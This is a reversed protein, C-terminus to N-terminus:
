IFVIEFSKGLKKCKAYVAPIRSKGDTLLIVYDAENIIKDIDTNFTAFSGLGDINTLIETCNSPIYSDIEVTKMSSIVAIKM